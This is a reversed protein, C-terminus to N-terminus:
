SFVKSSCGRIDILGVLLLHLEGPVRRAVRCRVGARVPRRGACVLLAIRSDRSALYLLVTDELRCNGVRKWEVVLLLLLMPTASERAAEDCLRWKSQRLLEPYMVSKDATLTLIAAPNDYKPFQVTSIRVPIHLGVPYCCSLHEM